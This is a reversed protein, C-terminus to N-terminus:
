GKTRAGVACYYQFNVSVGLEKIEYCITTDTLFLEAESWVDKGWLSMLSNTSARTSSTRKRGSHPLIKGKSIRSKSPQPVSVTVSDLKMPERETSPKPKPVVEDLNEEPQASAEEIAGGEEKLDSLEM